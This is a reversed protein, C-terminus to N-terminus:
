IECLIEFNFSGGFGLPNRVFVFRKEGRTSFPWSAGQYLRPIEM